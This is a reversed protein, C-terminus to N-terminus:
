GRVRDELEFNKMSGLRLKGIRSERELFVMRIMFGCVRLGMNICIYANYFLFFIWFM